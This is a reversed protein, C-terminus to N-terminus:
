MKCGDFFACQEVELDPMFATSPIVRLSIIRLGHRLLLSGGRFSICATADDALLNAKWAICVRACRSLSKRNLGNDAYMPNARVGESKTPSVRASIM